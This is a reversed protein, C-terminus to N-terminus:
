RRRAPPTRPPRPCTRTALNRKAKKINANLHEYYLYGAGATGLIVVALTAATWRLIRRGPRPADPEAGGRRRGGGGGHRGRNKPRAEADLTM